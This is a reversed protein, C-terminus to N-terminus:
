RANKGKWIEISFHMEYFQELRRRAHERFYKNGIEHIAFIDVMHKGEDNRLARGVRQILAVPSKGGWALFLTKINPLNVGADFISSALLVRILKRKFDKKIKERSAQPTDGDLRVSGEILQELIKGHEIRRFLILVEDRNKILDAILQNREKCNILMTEADIYNENEVFPIKFPILHIKPKISIGRKILEEQTIVYIVEGLVAEVYFGLGDGRKPTATFGLRITANICKSILQYFTKAASVHAEDVLVGDFVELDLKKASQFTSLTYNEAEPLFKKLTENIESLIDIRHALVLFNLKPFAAIIGGICRSKGANAALNIIGLGEKIGEKIAAAQYDRPYDRAKARKLYEDLADLDCEVRTNGEVIVPIDLSRKVRNIFGIPFCGRRLFRIKGDWVRRQFKPSFWYNPMTFTLVKDVDFSSVGEIRALPGSVEIRAKRSSDRSIPRKVEGM